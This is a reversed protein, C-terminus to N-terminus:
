RKKIRKKIFEFWFIYVNSFHINLKANFYNRIQTPEFDVLHMEKTLDIYLFNLYKQPFRSYPLGAM